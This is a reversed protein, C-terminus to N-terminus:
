RAALLDLWPRAADGFPEARETLAARVEDAAARAGAIVEVPYGYTRANVVFEDEDELVVRDDPRFRALDLDLDVVTVEAPTAWTPPLCIDCYIEREGPEATFMAIWWRDHPFLRVADLRTTSTRRTGYNFHVTTGAPTGLWM